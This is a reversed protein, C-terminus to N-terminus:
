QVMHSSGHHEGGCSCDCASGTANRCASSCKKEPNYTGQVENSTVRMRSHCRPCVADQNSEVMRKNAIDERYLHIFNGKVHEQYEHAWVAKCIRCKFIVRQTRHEAVIAALRTQRQERQQTRQEERKAAIENLMRGSWLNNSAFVRGTDLRKIKLPRESIIEAEHYIGTSDRWYKAADSYTTTM